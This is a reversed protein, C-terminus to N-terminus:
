KPELNKLEFFEKQLKQNSNKLDIAKQTLSQREEQLKIM